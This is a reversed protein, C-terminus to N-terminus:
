LTGRMAEECRDIAPAIIQMYLTEPESGERQLAANIEAATFEERNLITAVVNQMIEDGELPALDIGPLPDRGSEDPATLADATLADKNITESVALIMPEGNSDKLPEDDPRGFYDGPDASFKEGTEASYAFCRRGEVRGGGPIERGPHLAKFRQMNAVTALTPENTNENM